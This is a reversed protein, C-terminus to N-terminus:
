PQRPWLFLYVAIGVLVAILVWRLVHPLRAGISDDAKREAPWVRDIGIALALAALVFLGQCAQYGYHFRYLLWTAAGGIHGVTVALSTALALTRPLLLIMAVFVLMWGLFGVLFALPHYALLHQFTPSIENVSAYDGAWYEASQGVLTLAADLCAAAAPPLCLGWLRRSFPTM